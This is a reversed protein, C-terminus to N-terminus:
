NKRYRNRYWKWHSFFTKNDNIMWQKWYISDINRILSWYYRKVIEEFSNNISTIRSQCWKWCNVLANGQTAFWLSLSWFQIIFSLIFICISILRLIVVSKLLALLELSASWENITRHLEHFFSFVEAIEVIFWQIFMAGPLM